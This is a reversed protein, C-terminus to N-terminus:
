VRRFVLRGLVGAQRDNPEKAIGGLDNALARLAQALRSQELVVPRGANLADIAVRYESPIVHKVAIGIVREVDDHGIEAHRDFRNVMATVRAGPYRRRLANALRGAHRLAPLEQTAVIAIASASGLADLMGVDSRPIDLVTFKYKRAAFDLLTQLRAADVGGQV